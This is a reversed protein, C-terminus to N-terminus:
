RLRAELEVFEGPRLREAREIPPHGLEELAKAARARVGPSGTALELSRPLAKRRHAFAAHVLARVAPEPCDLLWDVAFRTREDDAILVAMAGLMAPVADSTSDKRPM